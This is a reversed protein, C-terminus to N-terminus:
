PPWSSSSASARQSRAPRSTPSTALAARGATSRTSCSPYRKLPLAAVAGLGEAVGRPLLPLSRQLRRPLKVLLRALELGLWLRLGTRPLLTRLVAPGVARSRRVAGGIERQYARGGAVPDGGAAALEGALVYAAVVALTTGGGVGPGPAYGADGVLAVRGRVWADMHIQSVSDFYFDEAEELQALLRPTEWGDGAFAEHLLRKHRAPDGDDGALPAAPRFLFGAVAAGSQRVPYLFVTRNPAVYRVIRGPPGLGDRVTFGAIYAGLDRRFQAEAGFALRRVASHLGDAGIVLRYRRPAGREFTVEVADAREQLSAISDGFVYEVDHRTREYLIRVLEGRMLEVHRDAIEVALRGVDLDLARGAADVTTTLTNRTRAAEVDPLVGMREVVDVASGWLDVAHGGGRLAPAREVVTPRFGYRKLWYAVVPGAVGAGSILVDGHPPPTIM